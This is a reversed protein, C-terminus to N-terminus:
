NTWQNEKTLKTLFDWMNDLVKELDANLKKAMDVSQICDTVGEKSRCHGGRKYVEACKQLAYAQTLLDKFTWFDSDKEFISSSFVEDASHWLLHKIFISSHTHLKHNGIYGFSWYWGCDWKHRDLKLLEGTVGLYDKKPDYSQTQKMKNKVRGLTITDM